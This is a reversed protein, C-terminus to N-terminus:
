MIQHFFYGTLFTVAIATTKAKVTGAIFVARAAVGTAPPLHLGTPFLYRDPVLISIQM